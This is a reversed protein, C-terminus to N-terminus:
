RGGDEGQRLCGLAEASVRVPTVCSQLRRQINSAELMWIWCPRRPKSREMAGNEVNKAGRAGDHAYYKGGNCRGNFGKCAHECFGTHKYNTEWLEVM